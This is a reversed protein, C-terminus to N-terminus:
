TLSAVFLDPLCSAPLPFPHVLPEGCRPATFAVSRKTGSGLVEKQLAAELLRHSQRINFM